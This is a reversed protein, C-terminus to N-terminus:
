QTREFLWVWGHRETKPRVAALEKLIEQRQADLAARGPSPAGEPKPGEKEVLLKLKDAVARLEKMLDDYKARREPTFETGKVPQSRNDGMLLDPLGDGNHDGVSVQVREGPRVVEDTSSKGKEPANVLKQAGAFQPKGESGRNPFWYVAGTTAGAVIDWKGDFDWDAVDVTAGGGPVQVEKGGSKIQENHTAFAPKEASGENIRLFLNGSRAGLLLDFDGDNDWDVTATSIAHEGPFQSTELKTWEKADYDWYNSILIRAGKKDMIPQQEGFRGEGLGEIFYLGGDFSGTILDLKDDGNLDM